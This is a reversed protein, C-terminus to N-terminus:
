VSYIKYGWTIEICAGANIVTGFRAHSRLIKFYFLIYWHEGQLHGSFASKTIPTMNKLLWTIMIFKNLNCINVVRLMNKFITLLIEGIMQHYASFWLFQVNICICKATFNLHCPWYNPKLLMFAHVLVAKNLSITSTYDYPSHKRQCMPGQSTDLIM